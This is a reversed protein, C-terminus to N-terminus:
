GEAGIAISPGENSKEEAQMQWGKQIASAIGSLMAELDRAKKAKQAEERRKKVEEREQEVAKIDKKLARVKKTSERLRTTLANNTNLAKTLQLLRANLESGYMDVTKKRRTYDSRRERNQQAKEALSDSTKQIMERCIQSLVDVPNITKVPPLVQIKALPDDEVDSADSRSSAPSPPGYITIPISNKPVGRPRPAIPDTPKTTSEAAKKRPQSAKPGKTTKKVTAVPIEKPRGRSKFTSHTMTPAEASDSITEIEVQADTDIPRGGGRRRTKSASTEEAAESKGPGVDRARTTVSNNSAASETSKRKPRQQGISKRKKRKTKRPPDQLATDEYTAEQEEISANSIDTVRDANEDQSQSADDIQNAVATVSDSIAITPSEKPVPKTRKRSNQGISVRRRKKSIPKAEQPDIVPHAAAAEAAFDRSETVEPADPHKQGGFPLGNIQAQVRLEERSPEISLSEKEELAMKRTPKSITKPSPQTKNAKKMSQQGISKRKKRKKSPGPPSAGQDSQQGIYSRKKRRNAFGTPTAVHYPPKTYQTAEVQVEAEKTSGPAEIGEPVEPVRNLRRKKSARNRADKQVGNSEIVEATTGTVQAADKVLRGRKKSSEAAPTRRSSKQVQLDPAPTRRTSRQPLLELAPTRRTSRQPLLEPQPTKRSRGSKRPELPAQTVDEQGPLIIDFGTNKIQRISTDPYAFTDLFPFPPISEGQM